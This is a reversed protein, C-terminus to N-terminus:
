NTSLSLLVTRAGPDPAVMLTFIHAVPDYSTQTASGTIATVVPPMPSYGQIVANAEGAAFRITATLMGQDEIQPIRQHGASVFKGTDGILGIHSPGVQAVVYYNGNASAADTFTSQASLLQGAHTFYNYVYAPGQIGVDGPAFTFPANSGDSARSYAFVYATRLGNHDSYTFGLMPPSAANQLEARADALYTSDTPVMPADPKVIVGDTRISQFVNAPVEQGIADGVGVLGASNTELILSMIDSSYVNDAFPFIGLASALRSNYLFPDWRTRNFGDPSVRATTLNNYKSGQLFHAVAQGCYQLTIGKSAM